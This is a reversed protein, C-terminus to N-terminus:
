ELPWRQPYNTTIGDVGLWLLLRMLVPNDVTWVWVRRSARHQRWVFTPDILPMLWFVELLSTNKVRPMNFGHIYLQGTEVAPNIQSVRELSDLDFSVVIVRNEMQFKDIFALVQEEIGPYLRPNKLELVLMVGTPEVVEFLEQLTPIPHEPNAEKVEQWNLSRVAGKGNTTRNITRDHLLVLVNDRTRQVDIEIYAAGLCIAKQVSEITNEPAVGAAGRHSIPIPKTIPSHRFIIHLMAILTLFLVGLKQLERWGNVIVTHFSFFRTRRIRNM